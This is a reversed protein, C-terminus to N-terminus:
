HMVSSNLQSACTIMMMMIFSHILSANIYLKITYQQVGLASIITLMAQSQTCLDPNFSWTRVVKWRYWRNVKAKNLMSSFIAQNLVCGYKVGCEKLYLNKTPM